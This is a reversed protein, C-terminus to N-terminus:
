GRQGDTAEILGALANALDDIRAIDPLTALQELAHAHRAATTAGLLLATGRLRHLAERVAGQDAKGIGQRCAALSELLSQRALTRMGPDLVPVSPSGAQRTVPQLAALLASAEAPKALWADAGASTALTRSAATADATLMVLRPQADRPRGSRVRAILEHGDLGPLHGDILAADWPEELLRGCAATGDSCVTVRHGAHELLARLAEGTAPEDEVVLVDLSRFPTGEVSAPVPEPSAPECPLIFWFTSGEGLRSDVGIRGGAQEIMERALAAGLGTGAQQEGARREGQWFREFVRELNSPAIGPGTDIIAFRAADKDERTISLVISGQATYKVANDLLAILTEQLASVSIRVVPSLTPDYHLTLTIDRAQARPAVLALAEGAFARLHVIGPADGPRGQDLAALALGNSVQRLLITAASWAAQRHRERSEVDTASGLLQLNAMIASLPTRMNHSTASLIRSKAANAHRLAENAKRSRRLFLLFYPMTILLHAVLGAWVLPQAQWVPHALLVLDASLVLSLCGLLWAPGYRFGYGVCIFPGISWLLAGAEGALVIFALMFATDCAMAVVRRVPCAAPRALKWLAILLSVLYFAFTTEALSCGLGSQMDTAIIWGPVAMGWALRALSQEAEDADTSFRARIERWRASASTRVATLDPTQHAPRDARPGAEIGAM